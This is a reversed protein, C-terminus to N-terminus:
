DHWEVHLSSMRKHMVHDLGYCSEEHCACQVLKTNLVWAVRWIKMLTYLFVLSWGLAALILVCCAGEM